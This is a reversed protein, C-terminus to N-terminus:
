ACDSTSTSTSDATSFGSIGYPLGGRTAGIRPQAAAASAAGGATPIVTFHHIPGLDAVHRPFGSPFVGMQCRVTAGSTRRRCFDVLDERTAPEPQEEKPRSTTTSRSMTYVSGLSPSSTRFQTLTVVPPPTGSDSRQDWFLRVQGMAGGSGPLEVPSGCGCDTVPGKRSPTGM